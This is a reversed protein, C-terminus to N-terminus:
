QWHQQERSDHEPLVHLKLTGSHLPAHPIGCTPHFIFSVHMRRYPEEKGLILCFQPPNRREDNHLTGEIGATTNREGRREGNLAAIPEM